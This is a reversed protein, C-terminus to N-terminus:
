RGEIRAIANADVKLHDLARPFAGLDELAYHQAALARANALREGDALLGKADANLPRERQM